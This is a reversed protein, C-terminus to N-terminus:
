RWCWGWQDHRAAWGGDSEPRAVEYCYGAGQNHHHRWWGQRVPLLGGQVRCNAGRSMCRWNLMVRCLETVSGGSPSWRRPRVGIHSKIESNTIWSLVSSKSALIRGRQLAHTRIALFWAHSYCPVLFVHTVCHLHSACLQSELQVFCQPWGTSGVAWQGRM